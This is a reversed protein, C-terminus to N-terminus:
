VIDDFPETSLDDSLIIEIDDLIKNTAISDLLKPLFKRPNYTPVIISFFM